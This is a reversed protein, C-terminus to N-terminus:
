FTKKFLQWFSSVIEKIIDSQGISTQFPIPLLGDKTCWFYCQIEFNSGVEFDLTLNFTENPSLLRSEVKNERCLPKIENITLTYDGCPNGDLKTCVFRSEYDQEGHWQYTQSLVCDTENKCIEFARDSSFVVREIKIPSVASTFTDEAWNSTTIKRWNDVQLNICILGHMPRHIPSMM